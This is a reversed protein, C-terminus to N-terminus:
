ANERDEKDKDNTKKEKYVSAYVKCLVVVALFSIMAYILCIDALYGEHKIYALAAISAIVITGMMNVAVIRDGVRPGLVARLMCLLILVAMIVLIFKLYTTLFMEFTM